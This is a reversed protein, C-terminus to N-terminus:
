CRQMETRSTEEIGIWHDPGFFMGGSTLIMADRDDGTPELCIKLSGDSSLIEVAQSSSVRASLAEGLLDLFVDFEDSELHELQSLRIRGTGFRKQAKVISLAEAHAAAALKQKEETRDVIRSLLAPRVQNADHRFSSAIRLPPADFWSTGPRVDAKEHNDLTRDNVLLHRAPSLGFVSRWLRHAEADSAAKAFSRAFMRFQAPRDIRQIRQDRMRTMFSLLKTISARLRERAIEANAVCDSQSIFWNRFRRWRSRMEECADANRDVSDDLMRELGAAELDRIFKAISDGSVLLNGAFREAYGILRQAEAADFLPQEIATELTRILTQVTTTLDEFHRELMSVRGQFKAADFQEAPPTAELEQLVYRIQALATFQLPATRRSTAEFWALAREAAEGRDTLQFTHRQKLFDDLTKVDTTDARPQLNGWECLRELASDIEAPAPVEEIGPIRLADVVDDLRLHFVFREKAEMFARMIARHLRVNDDTAYAFVRIPSASPTLEQELQHTDPNRNRCM